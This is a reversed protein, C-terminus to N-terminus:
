MSLLAGVRIPRFEKAEVRGQAGRCLCRRSRVQGDAKFIVYPDMRGAASTERLGRGGECVFSLKGAPLFTCKAFLQGAPQGDLLLEIKREQLVGFFAISWIGILPCPDTVLTQPRSRFAHVNEGGCNGALLNSIEPKECLYATGCRM